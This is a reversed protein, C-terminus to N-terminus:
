DNDEELWDFLAWGVIVLSVLMLSAIIVEM